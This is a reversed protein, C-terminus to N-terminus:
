PTYFIQTAYLKGNLEVVGVGLQTFKPNLINERHGQSNMWSNVIDGGRQSMGTSTYINEGIQSYGWGDRQAIDWIYGKTPSNHDFYHNDLMDKSKDRAYSAATSNLTYEPLGARRREANTANFIEEEVVSLYNSNQVEAQPESQQEQVFPTSPQTPGEIEGYFQTGDLEDNSSTPPQVVNPPEVIKTEPLKENNGTINKEKQEQIMKEKSTDQPIPTNSGIENKKNSCGVSVITLIGVIIALISKNKM